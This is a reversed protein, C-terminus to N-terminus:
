CTDAALRYTKMTKVLAVLVHWYYGILGENTLGM